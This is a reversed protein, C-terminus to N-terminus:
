STTSRIAQAVVQVLENQITTSTYQAKHPAKALHQALVHDHKAYFRVLEIFNGHNTCKEQQSESWDIHDNRHGRLALGQKGCLIVIKLLSQVVKQNNLMIKQAQKDLIMAISHSPNKYRAIFEVMRAVSTKHYDQRCHINAKEFM